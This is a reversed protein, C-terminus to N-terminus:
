GVRKWKSDSTLQFAGIFQDRKGWEDPALLSLTKGSSLDYLFYTKGIVPEFSIKSQWVMVSLNFEDYLHQIQELIEQREQEFADMMKKAAHTRALQVDPLSFAPAGVNTPYAKQLADYGQQEDWVVLDPKKKEKMNCHKAFIVM